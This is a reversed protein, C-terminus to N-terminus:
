KSSKNDEEKKNLDNIKDNAMKINDKLHTYSILEGLNNSISINSELIKSLKDQINNNYENWDMKSLLDKLFSIQDKLLIIQEDKSKLLSLFDTGDENKDVTESILNSLLNFDEDYGLANCLSKKTSNNPNSKNKLIRGIAMESVGSKKSLQYNTINQEIMVKKLSEFFEM